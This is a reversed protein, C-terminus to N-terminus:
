GAGCNALCGGLSGLEANCSACGGDVGALCTLAARYDDGCGCDEADAKWDRCASLAEGRSAPVGGASIACDQDYYNNIAEACSPTDNGCAGAFTAGTCLGLALRMTLAVRNTTRTSM